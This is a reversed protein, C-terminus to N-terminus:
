AAARVPCSVVPVGADAICRGVASKGLDLGAPMDSHAHILVSRNVLELRQGVTAADGELSIRAISSTYKLNSRVHLPDGAGETAPVKRQRPEHMSLFNRSRTRHPSAARENSIRRVCKRTTRQEPQLARIGYGYSSNVLKEGELPVVM